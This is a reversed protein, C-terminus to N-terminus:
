QSQAAAIALTYVGAEGFNDAVAKTWGGFQDIKFADAVTAFKGANAQAVSPEVARFGYDAFVQQAAPTFLFKVFGEAAARTGHKDVFSDVVVVPTEIVITSQPVVLEYDQGRQQGLLVENEYTIAVDGVGAEFNTISSRADKDMVSVNKLVSQLFVQAATPDNAAVGTVHGRLAAGYLALINWMAGGSTAANPTLVDVGPQALDAWDHINKPNGKRVAFAVVSNSVMGHDPAALWDHTILGAKAIRDVDPQLSLAVIDAELGGVVARSQAGSGQYSEDISVDQSTKAKWDAVFLPIIKGYAERPTSYAALTLKVAGGAEPASTPSAAPAGCAALLNLALLVTVLRKM